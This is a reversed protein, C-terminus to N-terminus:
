GWSGRGQSMPTGQVLYNAGSPGSRKLLLGELNLADVFSTFDGRPNTLGSARFAEHLEHASYLASGRRNADHDLFSMFDQAVKRHSPRKAPAPGPWSTGGAGMAQGGPAVHAGGVLDALTDYIITERVVAVADLADAETVEDRLDMRARAESLRILSELQRATVPVSDAGRQKARLQLYFEEVVRRAADSLTPQVHARAYAIYKRLQSRSLLHQDGLKAAAERLRVALGDAGDQKRWADYGDEGAFAVGDGAVGGEAMRAAGSGDKGAHLAMVHLSLLRDMHENPKDLLVFVLDFRSLINSPLKLNECVTKSRNYHGSVPNAAALVATRASLSCVIGAKAVSITQQEMAELLAQHEAGSMKDFEDICCCGQDGMVLAGAELAFDGTAADRVVTVTLGSSTTTNGCVYVGRPAIISAATLMQSKGMGPDGVVLVHIDARKAVANSRDTLARQSGGFLGLALGTKVVEHGFITPCMSATLLEFMRGRWKAHLRAIEQLDRVSFAVSANLSELGEAAAAGADGNENDGAKRGAGGGAAAKANTISIAEIYLLYTCKPKSSGGKGFGGGDALVEVSKVMGVVKIHDGPVCTDVLDDLLEVEVTRPVRGYLEELSDEPTEQLRIKQFDRTIADSRVPQLAKVRCGRAPCESPPKYRGDVLPLM